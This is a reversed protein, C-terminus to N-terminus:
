TKFFSLKVELYKEKLYLKFRYALYHLCQLVFTLFTLLMYYGLLKFPKNYDIQEYVINEKPNQIWFFFVVLAYTWGYMTTYIFHLIHVPYAMLVIDVIAVLSNVGHRHMNGVETIWSPEM